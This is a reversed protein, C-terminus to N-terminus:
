GAPGAGHAPDPVDDVLPEAAQFVQQVRGSAEDTARTLLIGPFATELRGFAGFLALYLMVPIFQPEPTPSVMLFAYSAAMMASVPRLRPAWLVALGLILVAALPYVRDLGLWVLPGSLINPFYTTMVARHSLILNFLITEKFVARVGFPVMIVVATALSIATDVAIPGLSKLNKRDFRHWYYAAMFPIILFKTMLGVGFLVAILYRNVPRPRAENKKIVLLILATVLFTMAPNTIIETFLFLLFFAALFRRKVRPFTWLFVLCVLAHLILFVATMVTSNWVGAIKYAAYYPYIEMPPYNFNGYVVKYFEAYHFITGSTYPNNGSDMADFVTQYVQVIESRPNIVSIEGIGLGLGALVAFALVGKRLLWDPRVEYILWFLALALSLKVSLDYRHGHPISKFAAMAFSVVVAFVLLSPVFAKRLTM